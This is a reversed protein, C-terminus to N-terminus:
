DDDQTLNIHEVSSKSSASPLPAEIPENKVDLAHHMAGFSRSAQHIEHAEELSANEDAIILMIAAEPLLFEEIFVLYNLPKFNDMVVKSQPFMKQLTNM